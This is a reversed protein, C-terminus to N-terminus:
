RRISTTLAEWATEEGSPCPSPSRRTRQARGCWGAMPRWLFDQESAAWGTTWLGQDGEAEVMRGGVSLRRSLRQGEGAVAGPVGVRLIEADSNSRGSLGMTTFSESPERVNRLSASRSVTGRRPGAIPSPPTTTPLPPPQLPAPLPTVAAGPQQLQHLVHRTMQVHCCEAVLDEEVDVLQDSCVAVRQEQYPHLALPSPPPPPPPDFQSEPASQDALGTLHIDSSYIQISSIHCAGCLNQLSILRDQISKQRQLAYKAVHLM